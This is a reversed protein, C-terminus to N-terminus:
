GGLVVRVAITEVEGESTVTLLVVEPLTPLIAEPLIVETLMVSDEGDSVGVGAVDPMAAPTLSVAMDEDIDGEDAVDEICTLAEIVCFM